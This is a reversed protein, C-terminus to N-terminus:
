TSSGRMDRSSILVIKKNQNKQAVYQQRDVIRTAARIVSQGL